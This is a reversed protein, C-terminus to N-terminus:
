PRMSGKPGYGDTIIRSSAPSPFFEKALKNYNGMIFIITVLCSGPVEIDDTLASGGIQRLNITIM